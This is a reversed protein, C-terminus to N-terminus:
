LYYYYYYYYYVYSAGPPRPPGADALGLPEPEGHLREQGRPRM